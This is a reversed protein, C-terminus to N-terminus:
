IPLEAKFVIIADGEIRVSEAVKGVCEVQM